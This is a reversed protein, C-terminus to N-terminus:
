AMRLDKHCGSGGIVLNAKGEHFSLSVDDLIKRDGFSKSIHKVEIM